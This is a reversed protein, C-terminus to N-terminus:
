CYHKNQVSSVSLISGQPVGMEQEHSDSFIDGVRVKFQRDNLFTSIFDALRGRIGFSYLDNLIGYKWTTDYASELDFFVSVVHEKKIFAERIFTEFRILHDVTGRQKRFGSQFNTILKHKELYWVLRDNVMREMTKCM